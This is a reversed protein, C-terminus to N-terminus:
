DPQMWSTDQCTPINQREDIPGIPNGFDERINRASAFSPDVRKLNIGIGFDGLHRNV